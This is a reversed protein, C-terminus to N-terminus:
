SVDTLTVNITESSLKKIILNIYIFKNVANFYNGSPIQFTVFYKLTNFINKLKKEVRFIHEASNSADSDNFLDLMGSLSRIKKM